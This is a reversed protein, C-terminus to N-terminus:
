PKNRKGYIEWGTRLGTIIKVVENETAEFEGKEINNLQVIGIGTYKSLEPLTFARAIRHGNILQGVYKKDIEM